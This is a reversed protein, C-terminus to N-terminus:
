FFERRRRKTRRGGFTFLGLPLILLPLFLVHGATALFVIAAIAVSVGLVRM